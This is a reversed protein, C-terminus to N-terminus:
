GDGKFVSFGGEIKSDDASLIAGDKKGGVILGDDEAVVVKLDSGFDVTIVEVADSFTELRRESLSISFPGNEVSVSSLDDIVPLSKLGVSVERQVHQSFFVVEEVDVVESAGVGHVDDFGGSVGFVVEGIFDDAPDEIEPEEEAFLVRFSGEM